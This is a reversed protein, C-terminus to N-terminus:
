IGVGCENTADAPRQPNSGRESIGSLLARARDRLSRSQDAILVQAEADQTTKRLYDMILQSRSIGLAKALVEAEEWIKRDDDKVHINGNM